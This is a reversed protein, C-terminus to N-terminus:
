VGGADLKKIHGSQRLMEDFSVGELSFRVRNRSAVGNDNQCLRAILPLAIRSHKLM